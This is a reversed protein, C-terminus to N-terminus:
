KVESLRRLGYPQPEAIGDRLRVWMRHAVKGLDQTRGLVAYKNGYERCGERHSYAGFISCRSWNAARGRSHGFVDLEFQWVVDGRLQQLQQARSRRSLLDEVEDLHSSLFQPSIFLNCGACQEVIICMEDQTVTQGKLLKRVVSLEAAGLYFTDYRHQPGLRDQLNPIRAMPYSVKQSIGPALDGIFGPFHQVGSVRFLPTMRSLLAAWPAPPSIYSLFLDPYPLTTALSYPYSHTLRASAYIQNLNVFFSCRPLDSHCYVYYKGAHVLIRTSLPRDEMRSCFCPWHLGHKELLAVFQRPTLKTHTELSLPWPVEFLFGFTHSYVTLETSNAQESALTSDFLEVQGSLPPNSAM